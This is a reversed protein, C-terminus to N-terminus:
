GLKKSYNGHQLCIVHLMTACMRESDCSGLRSNEVTCESMEMAALAQWHVCNHGADVPGSAWRDRDCWGSEFCFFLPSLITFSVVGDRIRYTQLACVCVCVCVVFLLPLAIFYLGRQCSSILVIHTSALDKWELKSLACMIKAYVIDHIYQHLSYM